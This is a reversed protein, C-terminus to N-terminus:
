RASGSSRASRRPASPWCPGSGKALPVTTRPKPAGMLLLLPAAVFMAAAGAFGHGRYITLDALVVLGLVALIERLEVRAPIPERTLLM